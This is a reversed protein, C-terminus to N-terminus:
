QWPLLYITDSGSDVNSWVLQNVMHFVRFLEALPICSDRLM